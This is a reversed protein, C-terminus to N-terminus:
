GNPQVYWRFETGTSKEVTVKYSAHSAFCGFTTGPTWSGPMNCTVNSVGYDSAIESQVQSASPGPVHTLLLVVFIVVIATWVTGGVFLWKAATSWGKRWAYVACGFAGFIGTLFIIVGATVWWGRAASNKPPLDTLPLSGFSGPSKERDTQKQPSGGTASPPSTPPQIQEAPGVASLVGEPSRQRPAAPPSAAPASSAELQAFYQIAFARGSADAPFHAVPDGDRRGSPWIQYSTDTGIVEFAAGKRIVEDAM